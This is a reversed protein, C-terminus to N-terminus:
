LLALDKAWPTLGPISGADEHFSTLNMEVSGCRSSRGKDVELLIETKRIQRLHCEQPGMWMCGQDNESDYCLKEM